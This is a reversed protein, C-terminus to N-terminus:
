RNRSPMQTTSFKLTSVTVTSNFLLDSVTAPRPQFSRHCSYCRFGQDGPAFRFLPAAGLGEAPPAGRRGQRRATDPTLRIVERGCWEKEECAASSDERLAEGRSPGLVCGKDVM